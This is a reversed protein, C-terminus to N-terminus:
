NKLDTLDVIHEASPDGGDDAATVVVDEGKAVSGVGGADGHVVTDGNVAYRRTFRDSSAVTISSTDVETVVGRQFVMTQTDGSDDAVVAQGHLPRGSGTFWGPGFRPWAWPGPYPWGEHTDAEATAPVPNGTGSAAAWGVAGLTVAVAAALPVVVRRSILRARSPGPAAAADASSPDTGPNPRDTM